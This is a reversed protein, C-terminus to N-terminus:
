TQRRNLLAAVALPLLGFLALVVEVAPGFRTAPTLSSSLPLDADLVAPEFLSSRAVVSGDPRILASIGSTTAVVAARGHEVARLRAMALQQASEGSRGYSANNSPLVLIQGGDRVAQRPLADFAVEYCTGVALRIGEVDLTGVRDGPRFDRPLLTRADPYLREILERHPLYEGFPVLHKKAYRVEPVGDDWVFISNENFAGDRLVAGIVLPLGIAARARAIAAATFPDTRPDTDVSNEPWIVLDPAPRRSAEVERALRLTQEVHNALVVRDEGLGILGEPVNGQVAAVRIEREAPPPSALLGLLPVLVALAGVATLRLCRRRGVLLLALGAGSAAVAATVLPAGGWAALGMTPADAQSFALRGWTFGGYPVRGRLGEVAVFAGALVVPLAVLPLRRTAVALLPGILGAILAQLVSLLIWPLPGLFRTWELLPLFLVLHALIAVGYATRLRAGAVAAVLLAVGVPASWWLDLRPLAFLLAVGAAGALFIRVRLRPAWGRSPLTVAGEDHHDVRHVQV